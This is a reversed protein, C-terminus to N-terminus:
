TATLTCKTSWKPCFVGLSSIIKHQDNQINVFRHTTHWLSPIFLNANSLHTLGNYYSPLAQAQKTTTISRLKINFCFKGTTNSHIVSSVCLSNLTATIQLRDNSHNCTVKSAILCLMWRYWSCFSCCYISQQRISFFSIFCWLGRFMYRENDGNFSQM